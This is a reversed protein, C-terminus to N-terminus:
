TLISPQLKPRVWPWYPNLTSRSPLITSGRMKFLTAMRRLRSVAHSCRMCILKKCTTCVDACVYKEDDSKHVEEQCYVKKKLVVKGERIDEVSVVNHKLNPPWKSHLELCATCLNKGCDCCFHVARSQTDCMECLQQSNKVGDVLSMLPVNTNLNVVNGDRVHTTGRCIPCLLTNAENKSPFELMDSLCKKCFTHTCSLQKPDSLLELCIPCQLNRYVTYEFSAM